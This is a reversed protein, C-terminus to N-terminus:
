TCANYGSGGPSLGNETLYIVTHFSLTDTNSIYMIYFLIYLRILTYKQFKIFIETPFTERRGSEEAERLVVAKWFVRNVITYSNHINPAIRSSLHWAKLIPIHCYTMIMKNPANVFNRFSVTLTMDTWKDTRM